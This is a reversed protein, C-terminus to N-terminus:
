WSAEEKLDRGRGIKQKKWSTAYAPLGETACDV